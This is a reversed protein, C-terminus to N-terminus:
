SCDWTYRPLWRQSFSAFMQLSCGNQHSLCHEGSDSRLLYFAVRAWMQAVDQASHLNQEAHVVTVIIHKWDARCGVLQIHPFRNCGQPPPRHPGRGGIEVWGRGYPPLMWSWSLFKLSNGQRCCAFVWGEGWRWSSGSCKIDNRLDTELTSPKNDWLLKPPEILLLLIFYSNVTIWLSHM